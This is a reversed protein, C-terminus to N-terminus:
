VCVALEDFIGEDDVQLLPREHECRGCLFLLLLPHLQECVAMLLGFVAKYSVTFRLLLLSLPGGECQHPLSLSFILSPSPFPFLLLLPLPSSSFSTKKQNTNLIFTNQM